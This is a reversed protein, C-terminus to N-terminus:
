KNLRILFSHVQNREEPWLYNPTRIKQFGIDDNYFENMKASASDSSNKQEVSRVSRFTILNMGISAELRFM